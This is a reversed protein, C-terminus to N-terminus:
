RQLLADDLVPIIPAVERSVLFDPRPRERWMPVNEVSNFSVIVVTRDYPSINNSSAHVLNSHFFLASGAPGKPAFLGYKSVLYAITERDLSYKLDATLNSIWAPSDEYVQYRMLDDVPQASRDIVGEAQSGPILFMPGNFENVDDIFIAVSAVRDSQLGDEKQWFIYDQHWEWVDGGFAAKANIKFQYVYVESGLLQQAPEVIRPHRALNNFVANTTHSGYVSRVMGREKELVRKPTDEAFVKLLEAKLADVEAPTYYNSLFLFGEQEYTEVQEKSLRM